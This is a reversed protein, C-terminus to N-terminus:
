YTLYSISFSSRITKYGSSEFFNILFVNTPIHTYCFHPDADPDTLGGFSQSSLKWYMKRAPRISAPMLGTSIEIYNANSQGTATSFTLTVAKGCKVYYTRCPVTSTFGSLTCLYSGELYWGDYLKVQQGLASGIRITDNVTMDNTGTTDFFVKDTTRLNQGIEFNGFGTNITSCNIGKTSNISDGQITGSVLTNGEVEFKYGGGPTATTKGILANNPIVANNGYISTTPTVIKTLGTESTIISASWGTEWNYISGGVLMDSIAVKAYRWVTETTGLLIVCKSGDHALRVQSFPASGRIEASYNYWGETYNYGGIICEWTGQDGAYNYGKITIRQFTNNWSQPMVIKLIGTETANTNSYLYVDHYHRIGTSSSNGIFAKEFHVVNGNDSISGTKVGSGGAQISLVRNATGTITSQKDDLATQLGTIKSISLSPLDDEALARRTWTTGTGIIVNRATPTLGAIATLYTNLPQYNDPDFNGSHWVGYGNVTVNGTFNGNVGDFDNAKLTGNVLTNGEVELRYGGVFSNKGFATNGSLNTYIAPTLTAIQDAIGNGAVSVSFYNYALTTNVGGSNSGSGYRYRWNSGDHYLNHMINMYSGGGYFTNYRDLAFNWRYDNAPRTGFYMRPNVRVAGTNTGNGDGATLELNGYGDTSENGRLVITAGRTSQYSGGGSLLLTKTDSGDTTNNGIFLGSPRSGIISGAVSLNSNLSLGEFTPSDTTRNSQGIEYAGYGTNIASGVIAGSATVTTFTGAAASNAGIVTGDIAGGNIDVKTITMSDAEPNGRIHDIRATDIRCKELISDGSELDSFRIFKQEITDNNQNIRSALTDFNANVDSSRAPTSPIFRNPVSVDNLSFTYAAVLLLILMAKKM